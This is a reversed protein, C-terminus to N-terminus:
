SADRVSPVVHLFPNGEDVSVVVADVLVRTGRQSPQALGAGVEVDDPRQGVM